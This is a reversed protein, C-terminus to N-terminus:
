ATAEARLTGPLPLSATVQFGGEVLPRASFKGGCLHARERMGIIGHGASAPPEAPARWGGLTGHGNRPDAGVAAPIRDDAAPCAQVPEAQLPNAQLPNAQLPNAQLPEAQLAGAQLPDAQAAGVANPGGYRPLTTAAGGDDTVRIALVGDDYGLHVTCRAGSGAHKVVNTLAEQVIRYASLDLGAPLPRANGYLELSVKVGASCTRRILRDLNGLGPAPALPASGGRGYGTGIGTLRGTAADGAGSAADALVGDGSAAVSDPTAFGTAGSAPWGAAGVASGPDGAAGDPRWGDAQGQVPTVDQQRLVGLMRRMEELAERSTVQIAGLADRAGDPSDDIVYQGYGAQVAIVSMSHAVVDHLERAIRLREDAVATSAAQQQLRVVYLRRQRVSYGTMWAIVSALGVPILEGPTGETRSRATGGIFVLLALSLALAAGGTRRSSTVTVTYLVYAASLFVLSVATVAAGPFMFGTAMDGFLVALILLAGFALVPARRRLAVPIFVGAAMLLGIALWMQNAGMFAQHVAILVFLAAFAAVACDIAIWHGTRMRQTLPAHPPRQMRAREAAAPGGPPYSPLRPERYSM